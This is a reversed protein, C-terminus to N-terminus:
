ASVFWKAKQRYIQDILCNGLCFLIVQPIIVVILIVAVIFGNNDVWENFAQLCGQTFIKKEADANSLRLTGKGCFIDLDEDPKTKCCTSPVSCTLLTNTSNICTFEPVLNWDRFGENNNSLGCCQLSLHINDVFYRTNDNKIKDDAYKLMSKRYSEEPFINFTSRVGPLTTYLIVVIMLIIESVILLLVVNKYIIIFITNERLAGWCGFMSIITTVLGIVCFFISVDFIVDVADYVKKNKESLLWISLAALILGAVTFIFNSIFLSYKTFINVESSDNHTNSTKKRGPSISEPGNGKTFM